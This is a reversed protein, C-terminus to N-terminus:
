VRSMGHLVNTVAPAVPKDADKEPVPRHATGKAPLFTDEVVLWADYSAPLERNGHVSSLDLRVHVLRCDLNHAAM